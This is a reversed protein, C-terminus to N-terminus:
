LFFVRWRAQTWEEDDLYLPTGGEIFFSIVIQIRSILEKVVPDTLEGRWIEYNRGRSTYREILEGPPNFGKASSDNQIHDDFESPNDFAAISRVDSNRQSGDCTQPLLRECSPIWNKLM